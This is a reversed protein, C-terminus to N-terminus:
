KWAQNVRVGTAYGVTSVPVLRRSSYWLVGLCVTKGDVADVREREVGCEDGSQRARGVAPVEERTVGKM